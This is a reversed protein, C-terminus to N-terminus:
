HCEHKDGVYKECVLCAKSFEPSGNFFVGKEVLYINDPLNTRPELVIKKDKLEGELIVGLKM